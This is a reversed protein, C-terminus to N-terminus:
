GFIRIPQQLSLQQRCVPCESYNRESCDGCVAKHGCPVFAHTSEDTLCISCLSEPRDKEAMERAEEHAKRQDEAPIDPEPLPPFHPNWEDPISDNYISDLYSDLDDQFFERPSIRRGRGHSLNRLITKRLFETAQDIEEPTSNLRCEMMVDFLLPPNKLQKRRLNIMERRYHDHCMIMRPNKQDFIPRSLCNNCHLTKEVFSTRSFHFGSTKSDFLTFVIPPPIDEQVIRKQDCTLRQRCLTPM